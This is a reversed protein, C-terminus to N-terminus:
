LKIDGGPDDQGLRHRREESDDPPAPIVAIGLKVWSGEVADAPLLSRPLSFAQAGVLLRATGDEILDVFAATEKM